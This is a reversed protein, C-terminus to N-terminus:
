SRRIESSGDNTEWLCDFGHTATSKFWNRIQALNYSSIDFCWLAYKQRYGMIQIWSTHKQYFAPTGELGENHLYSSMCFYKMSIHPKEGQQACPPPGTNRNKNGGNGFNLNNWQWCLLGILMQFTRRTKPAFDKRVRARIKNESGENIPSSDRSRGTPSRIRPRMQIRIKPVHKKKGRSKELAFISFYNKDEVAPRRGTPPPLFM